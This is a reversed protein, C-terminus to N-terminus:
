NFVLKNFLSRIEKMVEESLRGTKFKGKTEVIQTFEHPRVVYFDTLYELRARQELRRKDRKIGM